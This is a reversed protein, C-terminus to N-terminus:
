LSKGSIGARLDKFKSRRGKCGIVWCRRMSEGHAGGGDLASPAKVAAWKGEATVCVWASFGQKNGSFGVSNRINIRRKNALDALCFDLHGYTDIVQLISEAGM